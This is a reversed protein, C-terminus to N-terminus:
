RGQIPTGRPVWVFLEKGFLTEATPPSLIDKIRYNQLLTQRIPESLCIENGRHAAKEDRLDTSLLIVGFRRSELQAIWDGEPIRGTCVLWSYQYIDSIPAALGARLLRGTFYAMGETGPRFNARIYTGIARDRAFDDANPAATGLRTAPILSIGLLVAVGWMRRGEALTRVALGGLLPALIAVPELFYNLSSGEKAYCVASLGLALSLYVKLLRNPVRRLYQFALLSPILFFVTAFLMGDGLLTWSFPLINHSFFHLFFDQRAFAVFQFGLLLTLGGIAMLLAFQAAHRYRKELLLFALVALPAAVFQQKYFFAVLMVPGAWVIRINDRFRFALLFGTYSLLIAGMDCRATLGYFSVIRWSFFLLLAFASATLSGTLWYALLACAGALGITALLGLLRLPFYTTQNTSVIRSALLYYVPGYIMADFRRASAPAYVPVGERLHIIEALRMGEIVTLDGPYRLRTPWTKINWAASTGVLLFVVCPFFVRRHRALTPTISDFTILLM